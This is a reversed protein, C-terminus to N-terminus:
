HRPRRTGHQQRRLELLERALIILLQLVDRGTRSGGVSRLVRDYDDLLYRDELEGLRHEHALM